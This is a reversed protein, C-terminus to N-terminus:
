PCNNNFICLNPGQSNKWLYYLFEINSNEIYIIAHRCDAPPPTAVIFANGSRSSSNGIYNNIDIVLKEWGFSGQANPCSANFCYPFSFFGLQNSEDIKISNGNEDIIDMSLVEPDGTSSCDICVQQLCPKGITVLGCTTGCCGITNEAICCVQFTMDNGSFTHQVVSGASVSTGDGFDWTYISLPFLTMGSIVVSFEYTNSGLDVISLNLLNEDIDCSIKINDVLGFCSEYAEIEGVRSVEISMQDYNSKNLNLDEFCYHTMGNEISQDQTLAASGILEAVGGDFLNIKCLGETINTLQVSSNTPLAEFCVVAADFELNYSLEPSTNVEFPSFNDSIVEERHNEFQTYCLGAMNSDIYPDLYVFGMNPMFLDGSSFYDSWNEVCSYNFFEYGSYPFKPIECGSGVNISEFDGNLLFNDNCNSCNSQSYLNSSLFFIM